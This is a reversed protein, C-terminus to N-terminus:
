LSITKLRLKKHYQIAFRHAEDRIRRMLNLAPSDMSLRIVKFIFKRNKQRTLGPRVLGPRQEFIFVLEELRKALGIIPIHIRRQKLVEFVGGVQGKGGDVIILGPYPWEKHSMRRELVEKMMAVDNPKNQLRVRFRRYQSKDIDGNTLVVLSGTALKGGINSIDYCEIRALSQANMRHEELVKRLETIEKERQDSVLNPNELYEIPKRFQQTILEIQQIQKKIRGAVEYEENKAAQEMDRILGKLVNKKKGELFRVLYQIDKRYFKRMQESDFVIPCPCLGLHYYLCPKKGHRFVSQFPFIGRIIRLVSRMAGVSPYPGFFLADTDDMKRAQLISPFTNKITIKIFPYAKGDVFRVNYRPTHKKILNAELLLAELENDVIIYDINSAQTLMMKTKDGIGLNKTFYTAVRKKINLAKGVYLVTGRKDKFRYIGPKQPLNLSKFELPM